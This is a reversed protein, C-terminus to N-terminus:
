KEIDGLISKQSIDTNAAMKGILRGDRWLGLLRYRPHLTFNSRIPTLLKLPSNTSCLDFNLGIYVLCSYMLLEILTKNIAV